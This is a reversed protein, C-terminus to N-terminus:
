LRGLGSVLPEPGGYREQEPTRGATTLAHQVGKCELFLSLGSSPDNLAAECQSLSLDSRHGGDGSWPVSVLLYADASHASAGARGGGHMQPM